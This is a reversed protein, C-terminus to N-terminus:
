NERALEFLLYSLLKKGTSFAKFHTEGFPRSREKVPFEMCRLDNKYSRVVMEIDASLGHDLLDIAPVAKMTVGRFGHLVDYVTAGKRKWILAAVVGLAVVFWKRPKIIKNDEENIAGRAIRSAIILDYGDEFLSRFKLTEQPDITGKPHFFIVADSSCHAFAERYANNYGGKQQAYVKIGKEKFFEVTGDTSGGDLVYVEDFSGVPIGPFDLKCGELENWTMLCLAIKM